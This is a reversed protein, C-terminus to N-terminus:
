LIKIWRSPGELRRLWLWYSVEDYYVLNLGPFRIWVMTRYIKATPAVFDMNWNAVALYHDFIMWPGGSIVKERDEPLDFKVMFFSNDIDMIDFGGSLHWIRKLRDKMINYGINKGLLKVVLADQWPNCLEQFIRDDLHVNPLLRNGNEHEVRVMNCAILDMKERVSPPQKSGLVKDRFSVHPEMPVAENVNPGRREGGKEPPKAPPPQLTGSYTASFSFSAM